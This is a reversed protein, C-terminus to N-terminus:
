GLFFHLSLLFRSLRDREAIPFLQLQKQDVSDVSDVSDIILSVVRFIVLSM